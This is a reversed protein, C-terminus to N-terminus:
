EFPGLRKVPPLMWIWQRQLLVRAALRERQYDHNFGTAGAGTFIHRLDASTLHALLRGMGVTAYLLGLLAAIGTM